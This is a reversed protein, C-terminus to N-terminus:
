KNPEDKKKKLKRKGVTIEEITANEMTKKTLKDIELTTGL